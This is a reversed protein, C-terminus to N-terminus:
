LKAALDGMSPEFNNTPHYSSLAGDVNGLYAGGSQSCLENRQLKWEIDLWLSESPSRSARLDVNFYKISNLFKVIFRRPM